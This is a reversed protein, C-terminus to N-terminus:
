IKNIINILKDGNDLIKHAVCYNIIDIFLPLENKIIRREVDNNNLINELTNIESLNFENALNNKLTRKILKILTTLLDIEYKNLFRNNNVNDNHIQKVGGNITIVLKDQSKSHRFISGRFLTKIIVDIKNNDKEKIFFAAWLNKDQPRPGIPIIIKDEEKLYCRCSIVNSNISDTTIYGNNYMNILDKWAYVFMNIIDHQDIKNGDGGFEISRNLRDTAHAGMEIGDGTNSTWVVENGHNIQPEDYYKSMEVIFKNTNNLTFQSSEDLQFIINDLTYNTNTLYEFLSKM